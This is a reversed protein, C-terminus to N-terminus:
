PTVHVVAKQGRAMTMTVNIYTCKNYLSCLFLKYRGTRFCDVLKSRRRKGNRMPMQSALSVM